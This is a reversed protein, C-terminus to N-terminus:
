WEYLRQYVEATRMVRSVYARTNDGPITHIRQGDSYAPDALWRNVLGRGAHYACLATEPLEFEELLRALLFTGYRINTAPDFMDDYSGSTEGMQSKVWEYTEETLQMLGRAGVGSVAMPDFSSETRVVACVWAPDLGNAQANEVIMDRYQVPYVQRLFVRYGLAFLVCGIVVALIAVVPRVGARRKEQM